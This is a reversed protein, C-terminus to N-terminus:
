QFPNSGPSPANGKLGACTRFANTVRTSGLLSVVFPLAKGATVSMSSAHDMKDFMDNLVDPPVDASVSTDSNDEILFDHTWSGVTVDINGQVGVPLSWNQNIIRIQISSEDVRFAFGHASNIALCVDPPSTMSAYHATALWEGSEALPRMMEDASAPFIVALLGCITLLRWVIPVPAEWIKWCRYGIV